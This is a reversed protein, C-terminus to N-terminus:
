WSRIAEVGYYHHGRGVWWHGVLLRRGKSRMKALLLLCWEWDAPFVGHWWRWTSLIKWQYHLVHLQCNSWMQKLVLPLDEFCVVTVSGSWPGKPFDAKCMSMMKNTEGWECFHLFFSIVFGALSGVLSNDIFDNSKKFMEFCDWRYLM